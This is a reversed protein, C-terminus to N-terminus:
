KDTDKNIHLIDNPTCDLITCLKALTLVTINQNHRLKDLMHKDVGLNLLDYQSINKSKMTAWLPSYDFM